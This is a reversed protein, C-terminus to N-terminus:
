ACALTADRRGTTALNIIIFRRALPIPGASPRALGSPAALSTSEELVRGSRLHAHIRLTVPARPGDRNPIPIMPVEDVLRKIFGVMGADHSPLRNEIEGPEIVTEYEQFRSGDPWDGWYGTMWDEVIYLGGPKLTPYLLKHTQLSSARHLSPPTSSADGVGGTAL